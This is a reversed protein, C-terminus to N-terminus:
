VTIMEVGANIYDKIINEDIDNTTIIKDIDKLNCVVSLSVKDFKSSDSVVIIKKSVEIMTRKTQAEIFNPTTVGEKISIGNAGLFVKDVRFNRLIKETIPGVMARTHLRLNGGTVILEIGKKNLLETAIDISNTIVTINKAKINKAIELITTGCDLIVTDNDKILDAAAKGINSKELNKEQKKEEFSPEFSTKEVTVAGGHTRELLNNAEMEQLDRRITSESVNLLECVQSVKISNKDKLLELIKQQRERAFM